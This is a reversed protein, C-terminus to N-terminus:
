DAVDETVLVVNAYGLRNKLEDTLRVLDAYAVQADARLFIQRRKDGGTMDRVSAELSRWDSVIEGRSRTGVHIVGTNQLSVFVPEPAPTQYGDDGAPHDLPLSVVPRPAAVIMLAILLVLM